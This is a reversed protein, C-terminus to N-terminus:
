KFIPSGGELGLYMLNDITFLVTLSLQFTGLFPHFAQFKIIYYNKLRVKQMIPWRTLNYLLSLM